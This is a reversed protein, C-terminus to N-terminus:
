RAELFPNVRGRKVLIGAGGNVAGHTETYDNGRGGNLRQRYVGAGGILYATLSSGNTPLQFVADFMGAIVSPTTHYKSGFRFYTAEFRGSVFHTPTPFAALAGVQWGIRAYNYIDGRPVLGGAVVGASLSDAQAALHIPSLGSGCVVAATLGVNWVFRCLGVNM